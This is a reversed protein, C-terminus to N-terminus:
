LLEDIVAKLHEEVQPGEYGIHKYQLKGKSDIIYLAPIVTFGFVDGVASNTHFYVPFSYKKNGWWGQADALTNRAGSNIIMMQVRPNNRYTDYVKQLYPMEQMCPVCWTAWFDILVIKGQLTDPLVPKGALTVIGELSPAKAYLLQTRAEERLRISRQQQIQKWEAPWGTSDGNKWLMYSRHAATVLTTDTVTNHQVQRSYLHFAKEYQQIKEYGTAAYLLVKEDAQLALASDLYKQAQTNNHSNAYIIGTLALSTAAAGRHVAHRTADPVYSPIHGTEKFYRILGAPFTDSLQYSWRAYQLASDPALGQLALTETIEQIQRPLYPSNVNYSHRAHYLAKTANGKAAYYQFLAEHAGTLGKANQPTASAIEKELMAVRKAVDKEKVMEEVRMETGTATHAFRTKILQYVSDTRNGGMILYGMTALNMNEVPDAELKRAIYEYAQQRIATKEPEAAQTVQNQYLRVRAEYNDPYDHLEEQLLQQQQQLLDPAKRLQVALSGSQYMRVNKVPVNNATYVAIAFHRGEATRITDNGQKIFFTAYTAYRQLPFGAIWAGGAKQMPMTVPLEYFNSTTFVLQPTDAKTTAPTYTITVPDGAHPYQPLISVTQGQAYLSGACWTIGALM